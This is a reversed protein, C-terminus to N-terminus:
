RLMVKREMQIMGQRKLDMSVHVYTDLTIKCSSHGLVESLSKVDMGSELCRTAFSHRFTHFHLSDLGCDLQFQKIHNSLVRPEMFSSSSGTLIYAEEDNVKFKMCLDVMDPSLPITRISSRSKPPYIFVRTKTESISPSKLRIMTNHISLYSEELVIDKWKLACLEGIRLGTMLALYTGFKIRDMDMYLYQIFKKQEHISLHDVSKKECKPIQIDLQKLESFEKAAFFLISRLVVFIDQRTKSSLNKEQLAKRFEEITHDTIAELNHSKFFPLIHAHLISEYKNISSLKVQDSKRELWDYCLQEFENKAIIMKKKSYKEEAMKKQLAEQYSKGYVYGYVIKGERKEKIYRGEWRGDKRKYINKGKRM